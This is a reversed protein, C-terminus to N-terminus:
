RLGRGVCTQNNDNSNTGDPCITDDWKVDKFDAGTAAARYPNALTLDASNLLPGSLNANKLSTARLKAGLEHAYSLDAGDVVAHNLVDTTGPTVAFYHGTLRLVM